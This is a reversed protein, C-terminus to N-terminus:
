LFAKLYNIKHIIKILESVKSIIDKISDSQFTAESMYPNFLTPILNFSEFRSDGILFIRELNSIEGDSDRIISFVTIRVFINPGSFPETSFLIKFDKTFLHYETDPYKKIYFSAQKVFKSLDLKEGFDYRFIM